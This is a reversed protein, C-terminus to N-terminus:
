LKMIFALKFYPPLHSSMDTSPASSTTSQNQTQLYGGTVCGYGDDGRGFYYDDGAPGRGIRLNLSGDTTLRGSQCDGTNPGFRVEAYDLSHSHSNVVHNHSTTGGTLGLGASTTSVMIFRESLDPTANNGNCVAWGALPGTGLGSADFNWAGSYM